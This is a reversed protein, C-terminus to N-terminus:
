IDAPKVPLIGWFANRKMKTVQYQETYNHQSMTGYMLNFSSIDFGVIIYQKTIDIQVM